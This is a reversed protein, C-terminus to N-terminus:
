RFARPRRVVRRHSRDPRVFGDRPQTRVALSGGRARDLRRRLAPHVRRRPVLRRFGRLRGEDGPGDGPQEVSVRMGGRSVGLVGGRRSRRRLLRHACVAAMACLLDHEVRRFGSRGDQRDVVRGFSRRVVGQVHLRIEDGSRSARRLGRGMARLPEDNGDDRSPEQRLGQERVVLRNRRCAREMVELGLHLGAAERRGLRGARRLHAHLQTPFREGHSLAGRRVRAVVVRHQRGDRRQRQLVRHLIDAEVSRVAPHHEVGFAVAAWCGRRPLVGDPQKGGLRAPHQQM